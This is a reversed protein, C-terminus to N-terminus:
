LDYVISRRSWISAKMRTTSAPLKV